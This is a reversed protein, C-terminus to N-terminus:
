RRRRQTRDDRNKRPKKLKNTREINAQKEGAKNKGLEDETWEEQHTRHTENGQQTRNTPKRQEKRERREDELERPKSETRQDEEEEDKTRGEGQHSSQYKM